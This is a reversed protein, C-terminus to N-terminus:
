LQNFAIVVCSPASYIIEFISDKKPSNSYYCNDTSYIAQNLCPSIEDGALIDQRGYVPQIDKNSQSM